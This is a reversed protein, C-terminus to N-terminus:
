GRRQGPCPVDDFIDGFVKFPLRWNHIHASPRYNKCDVLNGWGKQMTAGKYHGRWQYTIYSYAPDKGRRVISLTVDDPGNVKVTVVTYDEADHDRKMPSALTGMTGMIDELEKSVDKWKKSGAVSLWKGLSGSVAQSDTIDFDSDLLSEYLSKM